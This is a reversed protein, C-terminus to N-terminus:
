HQMSQSKLLEEFESAVYTKSVSEFTTNYPASILVDQSKIALPRVLRMKDQCPGMCWGCQAEEGSWKINCM